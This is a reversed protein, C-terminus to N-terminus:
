SMHMVANFAVKCLRSFQVVCTLIGSTSFNNFSHDEVRSYVVGQLTVILKSFWVVIANLGKKSSCLGSGGLSAATAMQYSRPNTNDHQYSFNESSGAFIPISGRKM